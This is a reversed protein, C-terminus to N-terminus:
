KWEILCNKMDQLSNLLRDLKLHYDFWFDEDESRKSYMPCNECNKFGERCRGGCLRVVRKIRRSYVYYFDFNECDSKYERRNIKM